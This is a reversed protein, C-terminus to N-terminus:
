KVKCLKEFDWIFPHSFINTYMDTLCENAKDVDKDVLKEFQKYAWQIRIMFYIGAALITFIFSGLWIILYLDM